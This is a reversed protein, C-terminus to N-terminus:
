ILDGFLARALHAHRARIEQEAGGAGPSMARLGTDPEATAGDAELAAALARGKMAEDRRSDADKQATDARQEAKQVNQRQVATGFLAGAAAFAVAEISGFVWAIRTWTVEDASSRVILVVSFAVWVVVAFAAVWLAIGSLPTSPASTADAQGSHSSNSSGEANDSIQSSMPRGELVYRRTTEHPDGLLTYRNRWGSATWSLLWTLRQAWSMTHVSVPQQRDTPLSLSSSEADAVVLMKLYDHRLQTLAYRQPLDAIGAQRARGEEADGIVLLMTALKLGLHVGHTVTPVPQDCALALLQSARRLDLRGYSLAAELVLGDTGLDRAANTRRCWVALQDFDDGLAFAYGILLQAFSEASWNTADAAGRIAAVTRAAFSARHYDGSLLLDMLVTAVPDTPEVRLRPAAGAPTFRAIHCADDGAGAFPITVIRRPTWRDAVSASLSVPLDASVQLGASGASVTAARAASFPVSVAHRRLGKHVDVAVKTPGRNLPGISSDARGDVMSVQEHDNESPLDAPLSLTVIGELPITWQAHIARWPAIDATVRLEQGGPVEFLQGPAILFSTQEVTAQIPVIWYSSPHDSRQRWVIRVGTM